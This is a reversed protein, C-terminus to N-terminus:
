PDSPCRASHQTSPACLFPSYVQWWEGGRLDSALDLTLDLHATLTGGHVTAEKYVETFDCM